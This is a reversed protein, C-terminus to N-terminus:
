QKSMVAKFGRSILDNTYFKNYKFWYIILVIGATPVTLFFLIFFHKFDGRFLAPFFGFFFTTWSFGVPVEKFQGTGENKLKITSM